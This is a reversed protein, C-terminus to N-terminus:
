PTPAPSPPAGGGALREGAVRLVPARALRSAPEDFTFVAGAIELALSHFREDPSSEGQFSPLTAWFRSRRLAGALARQEDPDLSRRGEPGARGCRVVVGEAYVWRSSANGELVRYDVRFPRSPPAGMELRVLEREVAEGVHVAEVVQGKVQDLSAGFVKGQRLALDPRSATEALRSYVGHGQRRLFFLWSGGPMLEQEHALTQVTLPNEVPHGTWQEAVRVITVPGKPGPEIDVRGVVVADARMTWDTVGAGARPDALCADSGPPPPKASFCGPPGGLAAALALAPALRAPRASGSAHRRAGM